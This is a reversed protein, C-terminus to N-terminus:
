TQALSLYVRLRSGIRAQETQGCTSSNQMQAGNKMDKLKREECEPQKKM